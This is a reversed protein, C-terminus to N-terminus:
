FSVFLRYSFSFFGDYFFAVFTWVRHTLLAFPPFVSEISYITKFHREYYKICICVMFDNIVIVSKCLRLIENERNEANVKVDWLCVNTCANHLYHQLDRFWISWKSGSCKKKNTTKITTFTAISATRSLYSYQRMSNTCLIWCISIPIWNSCIKPEHKPWMLGHIHRRM